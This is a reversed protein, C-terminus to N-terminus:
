CKVFVMRRSNFLIIICVAINANQIICHWTYPDCAILYFLFFAFNYHLLQLLFPHNIDNWTNYPCDILHDGYINWIENFFGGLFYEFGSSGLFSRSASIGFLGMFVSATFVNFAACLQGNAPFVFVAASAVATGSDNDM